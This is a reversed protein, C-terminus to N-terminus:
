ARAAWRKVWRVRCCTEYAAPRYAALWLAALKLYARKSRRQWADLRWPTRGLPTPRAGVYVIAEAAGAGALRIACPMRRYNRGEYHLLRGTQRRDLGRVLLGAVSAGPRPVLVPVSSSHKAMRRYGWLKGPLLTLHEADPGFVLRRVDADLLTGYFFYDTVAKQPSIRGM